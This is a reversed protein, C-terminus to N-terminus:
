GEHDEPSGEDTTDDLAWRVFTVEPTVAEFVARVRGGIRLSDEPNQLVGLMRPGSDLQVLGVSYPVDDSFAKDLPRHYTAYSYLEGAGQVETWDSDQCQCEPCVPGPPWRLYGCSTCAQVLLRSQRTGEWFPGVLPDEVDPLPKTYDSV